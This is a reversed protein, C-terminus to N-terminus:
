PILTEKERHAGRERAYSQLLRGTERCDLYMSYMMVIRENLAKAANPTATKLQHRLFDVRAKLVNAEQLYEEGWSMFDM